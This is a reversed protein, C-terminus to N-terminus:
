ADAYLFISASAPVCVSAIFVRMQTRLTPFLSIIETNFLRACSICHIVSIESMVSMLILTLIFIIIQM